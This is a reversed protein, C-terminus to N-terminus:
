ILAPHIQYRQCLIDLIHERPPKLFARALSIFKYTFESGNDTQIVKIKFPASKLLQKFFSATNNVSLEHYIKAFRWRTCDDIATYQYHQQGKIRYPLYKVDMQILDGPQPMSYCRIYKKRFKGRRPPILGERRLIKAITSVPLHLSYQDKLIFQLRVPGYNTKKRLSVLLDVIEKPTQKPHSKPRRKLPKLAELSFSALSFRRSWFYYFSRHYGLRQCALSINRLRYACLFLTIKRRIELDRNYRM